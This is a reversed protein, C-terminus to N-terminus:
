IAGVGPGSLFARITGLDGLPQANAPAGCLVGRMSAAILDPALKRELWRSVRGLLRGRITELAGMILVAIGAIATLFVLTEVRGSALVRDYMLWMYIPSVLILVNTAFSFAALMPLGSRFENLAAKLPNAERRAM